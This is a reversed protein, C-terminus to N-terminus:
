INKKKTFHLAHAVAKGKFFTPFVPLRKCTTYQYSAACLVQLLERLKKNIEKTELVEKRLKDLELNGHSDGEPAEKNAETQTPLFFTFVLM